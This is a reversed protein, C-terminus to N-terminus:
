IKRKVLVIGATGFLILGIWLFPAAEDGTKPVKQYTTKKQEKHVPEPGHETTGAPVEDGDAPPLPAPPLPADPDPAAILAIGDELVAKRRIEDITYKTQTSVDNLDYRPRKDKYWAGIAKGTEHFDANMTVAEPFDTIKTASDYIFIDAGATAATNNYIKSGGSVSLSTPNLEFISALAGGYLLASNNTLSSQNVLKLNWHFYVAGGMNASNKEFVCHDFVAEKGADIAGGLGDDTDPCVTSNSILRTNSIHLYGSDDEDFYMQEIAGGRTNSRNSIFASDSITVRSNKRAFVAGGQAGETIAENEQFYSNRITLSCDHDDDTDHYVAGGGDVNDELISNEKFHCYTLTLNSNIADIAGGSDSSKNKEFRCSECDAEADWLAIAGGKAYIDDAANNRFLCGAAYLAPVPSSDGKKELYVVAGDQTAANKEFLIDKLTVKSDYAFIVGGETNIFGTIMGIGETDVTLGDAESYSTHGTQNERNELVLESGEIALFGCKENGTISHGNLRVTLKLGKPVKITKDRTDPVTLKEKVNIVLSNDTCGEIKTALEDYTSVEEGLSVSAIFIAFFIMLAFALGKGGRM